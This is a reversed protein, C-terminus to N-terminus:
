RVPKHACIAVSPRIDGSLIGRALLRDTPSPPIATSAYMVGLNQGKRDQPGYGKGNTLMQYLSHKRTRQKQVAFWAAVIKADRPREQSALMRALATEDGPDDATDRTPTEASTALASAFARPNPPVEAPTVPASTSPSPGEATATRASASSTERDPEAGFLVAWMHTGVQRVLDRVWAWGAQLRRWLQQAVLRLVELM